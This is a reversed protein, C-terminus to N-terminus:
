MMWRIVEFAEAFESNCQVGRTRALGYIFDKSFYNRDLALQTKYCRTAKFKTDMQKQTLRVFMQTNFTVHNWPLEYSIISSSTKFARIMENAIVQHDQHFDNLSPGIVLDPRFETRARVLNELIDQRNQDFKRVDYRFVTANEKPVDLVSLVDYFEKMLSDKPVGDPLSREAISFVFYRIEDGNEVFKTLTGGCGLEVDDTHPSLFLIKM